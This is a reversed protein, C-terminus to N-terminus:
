VCVHHRPRGDGRRELGRWYWVSLTRWLDPRSEGGAEGDPDSRAARGPLHGHGGEAPHYRCGSSDADRIPGHRRLVEEAARWGTSVAIPTVAPHALARPGLAVRLWAGRARTCARSTGYFLGYLFDGSWLGHAHGRTTHAM